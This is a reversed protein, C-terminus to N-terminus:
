VQSSWLSTQRKTWESAWVSLTCRQYWQRQKLSGAARLLQIHGSSRWEVNHKSSSAFYRKESDPPCACSFFFSSFFVVLFRLGLMFGSTNGWTWGLLLGQPIEWLLYLESLFSIIEIMDEAKELSCHNSYNALDSFLWQQAMWLKNWKAKEEKLGAATM